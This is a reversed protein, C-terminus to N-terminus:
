GMWNATTFVALRCESEAERKVVSTLHVVLDKSLENFLTRQCEEERVFSIWEM